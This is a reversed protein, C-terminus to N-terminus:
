VIKENSLQPQMEICKTKGECPLGIRFYMKKRSPRMIVSAVTRSRKLNESHTCIGTPYHRHDSFVTKFIEEENADKEKAILFLEKIRNLRKISSNKTFINLKDEAELDKHLFHNTHFLLEGKKIKYTSPTFEFMSVKTHDCAMFCRSSSPKINLIEKEIENISKWELLIRVMLYPSLGTKWGNSLVMNIGLALGNSNMGLYGLLGAFTFMLIENVENGEPFIKLIVPYNGHTGNLDITQGIIPGDQYYKSAFTSCDSHDTINILERRYQLLVAQQISINAGFALGKLEESIAKHENVLFYFKENCYDLIQDETLPTSRYENVVSWDVGLIQEIEDKIEKGYKIGREYASGRLEIIKLM